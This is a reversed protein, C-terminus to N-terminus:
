VAGTHEPRAPPSTTLTLPPFKVVPDSAEMSSHLESGVWGWIRKRPLSMGM